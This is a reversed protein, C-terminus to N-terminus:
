AEGGLDSALRKKGKENGKEKKGGVKNRGKGKRGKKEIDEIDNGNRKRGEM